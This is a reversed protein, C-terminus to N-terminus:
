QFRNSVRSLGRRREVVPSEFAFEASLQMRQKPAPYAAPLQQPSKILKAEQQKLKNLELVRPHVPV